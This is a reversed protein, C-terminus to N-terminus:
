NRHLIHLYPIKNFFKSLYLTENNGDGMLKSEDVTIKTGTAKITGNPLTIGADEYTIFERAGEKIDAGNIYTLKGDDFGLFSDNVGFTFIPQAQDIEEQTMSLIEHLYGSKSMEEVDRRLEEKAAKNMVPPKNPDKKKLNRPLQKKAPSKEQISM